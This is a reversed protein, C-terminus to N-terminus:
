HWVELFFDFFSLFLTILQQRPKVCSKFDEGTRDMAARWPMGCCTVAYCLVSCCLLAYYLVPCCLMTCCLMPCCLLAFCLVACSQVTCYLVAYYLMAYSLVACCLVADHLWTTIPPLFSSTDESESMNDATLQKWVGTRSYLTYWSQSVYASVDNRHVDHCYLTRYRIVSYSLNLAEYWSTWIVTLVM